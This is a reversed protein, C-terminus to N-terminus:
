TTKMIQSTNKENTLLTITEKFQHIIEFKAIIHKWFISKFTHAYKNITRGVGLM